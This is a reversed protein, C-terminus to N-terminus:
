VSLAKIADGLKKSSKALRAARSKCAERVRYGTGCKGIIFYTKSTTAVGYRTGEIERSCVLVQNGNASIDYIDLSRATGILKRGIRCSVKKWGTKDFPRPLKGKAAADLVLKQADSLQTAIAPTSVLQGYEDRTLLPTVAIRNAFKPPTFPFDRKDSISLEQNPSINRAAIPSSVLNKNM